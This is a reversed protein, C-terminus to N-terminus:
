ERRTVPASRGLAVAGVVVLAYLITAPGISEGLLLWSGVLTFFIQLLQVQGVRAVGGLAMGKNWFFFGFFQSMLALYVFAAWARWSANWDVQPLMWLVVPLLVPVALVLAWSIVQWGGLRRALDGSIAYGIAAAVVALVLLLDAEHVETGGDTLAFAIVAAGGALGCLWFRLSPREGAFIMAAGATALPLVGLVVGGHSAPATQMAIASFVPFGFIVGVAVGGLRLLDRSEPPRVRGRWLFLAGVAAAVLARALGVFVPPLEAVAIRTVPLTLGFIAVGALGYLYGRTSPSLGSM